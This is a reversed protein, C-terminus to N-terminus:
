SPQVGIRLLNRVAGPRRETRNGNEGDSRQAAPQCSPDSTALDPNFHMPM